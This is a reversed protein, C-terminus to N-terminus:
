QAQNKCVPGFLGDFVRILVWLKAEMKLKIHFDLNSWTKFDESSFFNELILRNIEEAGSGEGESGKGLIKKKKWFKLIRQLIEQIQDNTCIQVM